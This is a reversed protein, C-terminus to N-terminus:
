KSFAIVFAVGDVTNRASIKWGHQQIITKTLAMGIGTKGHKGTYFRDFLHALDEESLQLGDNAITLSKTTVTVRIYTQAYRLSNSLINTLARELQAPDALVEVNALEEQVELNQQRAQFTIPYLCNELVDSLSVPVKEIALAGSELRSLHLIEDVLHRMKETEQLINQSAEQSSLLDNSLGDAYGQIVMLPTKLEHSANEFFEKQQHREREIKAGLRMGLSGSGLLGLVLIFLLLVTIYHVLRIEPTVEVVIMVKEQGVDAVSIYYDNGSLHVFQIEQNKVHQKAWIALSELTEQSDEDMNDKPQYDKTLPVDLGYLRESIIVNYEESYELISDQIAVQAEQHIYTMMGVYFGILILGSTVISALIFWIGVRKKTM